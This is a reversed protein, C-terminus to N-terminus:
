VPATRKPGLLHIMQSVIDKDLEHSMHNMILRITEYGSMAKKYPRNSTLADFIDVASCIRTELPIKDSTLRYPYGSGDLKEHHSRIVSLAAPGISEHSQMLDVGYLPHREIESLEQKTLIGTKMLVETPVRTKGIDHLLYGLAIDTINKHETLKMELLLGTGLTAVNVSHTYLSYDLAFTSVMTRVIRPDNVITKLTHEVLTKNTHILVPSDPRNFTAQVLASTTTYLIQSRKEPTTHPSTLKEGLTRDVFEFYAPADADAIYLNKVGRELLYACKERTLDLESSKYLVYRQGSLSPIALYLDFHAGKEPELTALPAPHFITREQKQAELDEKRLASM